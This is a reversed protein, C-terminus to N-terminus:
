MKINKYIIDVADTKGIAAAKEAMRNLRDRSALLQMVAATFPAFGEQLSSEEILVAAGEDAVSKANYYQHNNTM